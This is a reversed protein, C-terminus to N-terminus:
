EKLIGKEKLAELIREKGFGQVIKGEVDIVPMGVEADAIGIKKMMEQMAGESAQVNEEKFEVGKRKLLAKAAGCKPCDPITYVILAM